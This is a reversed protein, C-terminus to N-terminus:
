VRRWEYRADPVKEENREGSTEEVLRFGFKEYFAIARHNKQFVWLDLIEASDLSELLLASGVKLNQHVPSVYLHEITQGLKALFGTIIEGHIAVRVENEKLVINEMWWLTEEETYLTPLYTMESRAAM